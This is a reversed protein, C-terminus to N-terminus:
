GIQLPTSNKRKRSQVEGIKTVLEAVNIGAKTSEKDQYRLGLQNLRCNIKRDILQLNNIDTNTTDGDLFIIVKGKPVEGYHQEWVIIHKMRWINPEAVKVYVYRQNKKYSNRITETGIPKHNAPINGKKFQTPKWGGIHTGKNAPIHGKEFRGTRGTKINHNKLYSRIQNIEIKPSFKKNFEEVIEKYSHGWAFEKIFNREEIKYKRGTM